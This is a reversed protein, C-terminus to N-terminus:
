RMQGTKTNRYWCPFRHAPIRLNANPPPATGRSLRRYDPPVKFLQVRLLRTLRPEFRVFEEPHDCARLGSTPDWQYYWHDLGCVIHPIGRRDTYLSGPGFPAILQGLRIQKHGM